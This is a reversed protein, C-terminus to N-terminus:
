NRAKPVNLRQQLESMEAFYATDVEDVPKFRHAKTSSKSTKGSNALDKGDIDTLYKVHVKLDNGKLGLSASVNIIEALRGFKMNTPRCAAKIVVVKMGITPYLECKECAQVENGMDSVLELQEQLVTIKNGGDCKDCKKTVNNKHRGM